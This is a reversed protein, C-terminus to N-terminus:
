NQAHDHWYAAIDSTQKLVEGPALPSPWITILYSDIMAGTDAERAATMNSASYRLRYTGPSLPLEIDPESTGWGTLTLPADVALPTEVIEEWSTAVDPRDGATEVTVAVTGTHLGTTFKIPAVSTDVLGNGPDLGAALAPTDDTYDAPSSLYFQMYAVPVPGSYLEGSTGITGPSSLEHERAAAAAATEAIVEAPDRPPAVAPISELVRRAQDHDIQDPTFRLERVWTDDSMSVVGQRHSRYDTLPDETGALWQRFVTQPGMAHIMMAMAGTEPDGDIVQTNLTTPFWTPEPRPLDALFRQKEEHEAIQRATEDEHETCDGHWSFLESDFEEDLFHEVVELGPDTPSHWGIIFGTEADIVFTQAPYHQHADFQVEWGARGAIETEAISVPDGVTYGSVADSSGPFPWYTPGKLLMQSHFGSYMMMVHAERSTHVMGEPTNRYDGEENTILRVGRQDEDRWRFPPDAWFREISGTDLRRVSARVSRGATGYNLARIRRWSEVMVVGYFSSRGLLRLKSM